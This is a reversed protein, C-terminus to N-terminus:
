RSAWGLDETTHQVYGLDTSTNGDFHTARLAPQSYFISNATPYVVNDNDSNADYAAPAGSAPGVYYQTLHNNADTSFVLAASQTKVTILPGASANAALGASLLLVSALSQMWPISDM